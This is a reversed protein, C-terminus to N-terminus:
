SLNIIASLQEAKLCFTFEGLIARHYGDTTKPLDEEQWDRLTLLGMNQIDLIPMWTDPLFRSKILTINAWPTDIMKPLQGGLVVDSKDYVYHVDATLWSRVKKYQNPSVVMALNSSGGSQYIPQIANEVDALTLASLAIPSANVNTTIFTKYGGFTRPLASTGANLSRVGYHINREMTQMLGIMAKNRHYTMPDTIGYTAIPIDKASGSVSVTEEYIQSYNFSNTMTTFPSTTYVDDELKAIGIITFNANDAIAAAITGGWGRVVTVVNTIENVASVWLVETGFKLLHGHKVLSADALTLTVADILGSETVTGVFPLYTDDLWEVKTSLGNQFRFKSAAGDFGGLLDILPTENPGVLTIAESVVRKQPLPDSFTTWPSEVIPM